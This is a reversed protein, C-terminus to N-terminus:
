GGEQTPLYQMNEKRRKREKEMKKENQSPTKSPGRAEKKEKRTNRIEYLIRM